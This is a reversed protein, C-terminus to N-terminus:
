LLSSFEQVLDDVTHPPRKMMMVVIDRQRQQEAATLYELPSKGVVRALLCALAHWVCLEEIGERLPSDSLINLYSHHFQRAGALLQPRYDALHHAKSLFHTLAFGVDFAPDGFHVVEHDLLVMRQPSILVNKPSFDGHVVSLRRRRTADLLTKIFGAAEPVNKASHQFYPQIRLSEFFSRDAFIASFEASALQSGRHIAGLLAGFSRFHEPNITGEMLMHKWVQHPPPVAAMAILHQDEDEFLLPTITEPPAVRPLWKLALAERHIRQPDAFWDGKVRLKSLAQKLVFNKGSTREVLVTRNSVGGRLISLCVREGEGIRGSARLYQDLNGFDEIDLPFIM